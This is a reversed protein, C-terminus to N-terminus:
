GSGGCGCSRGVQWVDGNAVVVRWSEVGTSKLAAVTGYAILDGTTRHRAEVIEGDFSFRVTGYSRRRRGQPNAFTVRLAARREAIAEAIM